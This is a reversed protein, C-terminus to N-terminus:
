FKYILFFFREREREYVFVVYLIENETETLALRDLNESGRIERGRKRQLYHWLRWEIWLRLDSVPVSHVCLALPTSFEFSNIKTVTVTKSHPGHRWRRAAATAALTRWVRRLVEDSGEDGLFGERDGGIEPVFEELEREIKVPGRVTNVVSALEETQRREERWNQM